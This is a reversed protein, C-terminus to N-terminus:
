MEGAGISSHDDDLWDGIFGHASRLEGLPAAMVVMDQDHGKQDQVYDPLVGEMKFGLNTYIDLLDKQPRMFKTTIKELKKDHAIDYMDKAMAFQIGKGILNEPVVLRLYASSSKWMETEIELSADGVIEGNMESVRRIIKGSEAQKARDKLHTKDIVDSRFYNRQSEPIGSFFSFAEQLDDSSLDRVSIV